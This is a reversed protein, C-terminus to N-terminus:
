PSKFFFFVDGGDSVLTKRVNRANHCIMSTVCVEEGPVQNKSFPTKESDLM